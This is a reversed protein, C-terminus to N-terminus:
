PKKVPFNPMPTQFYKNERPFFINGLCHVPEVCIYIYVVLTHNFRKCVTGKRTAFRQEELQAHLRPGLM